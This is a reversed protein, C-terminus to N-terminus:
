VRRPRFTTVKVTDAHRFYNNRKQPLHRLIRESVVEEISKGRPLTARAVPPKNNRPKM